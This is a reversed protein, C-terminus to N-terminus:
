PYWIKWTFIWVLSFILPTESVCYWPGQSYEFINQFIIIHIDVFPCWVHYVLKKKGLKSPTTDLNLLHLLGSSHNLNTGEACKNSLCWRSGWFLYYWKLLVLKLRYFYRSKQGRLWIGTFSSPTPETSLLGEVSFSWWKTRLLFFIQYTVCSVQCRVGSVQCTVGSMHCTVHSMHCIVHSVHHSTFM